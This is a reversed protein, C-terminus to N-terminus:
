KWIGELCVMRFCKDNVVYEKNVTMKSAAIDYEETQERFECFIVHTGPEIEEQGLIEVPILSADPGAVLCERETDWLWERGYEMGNRLSDFDTILVVDGERYGGEIVAKEFSGAYGTFELNVAMYDGISRGSVCNLITGNGYDTEYFVRNSVPDINGYSQCLMLASLATGVALGVFDRKGRRTGIMYVIALLFSYGVCTGMIYRPLLYTYFVSFFLVLMLISGLSMGALICRNVNCGSDEAGASETGSIEDIKGKSRIKFIVLRLIGICLLSLILWNFNLYLFQKGRELTNPAPFSITNIEGGVGEFAGWVNTFLFYIIIWIVGPIVSFFYKNWRVERLKGKRGILEAVFAGMFIGAYLFASTEKTFLFAIGMLPILLEYEKLFVLFFLTGFSLIGYDMSLIPNQGYLYPSFAFVASFVTAEGYANKFVTLICRYFGYIAFAGALVQMMLYGEPGDEVMLRGIGVWLTYAFSRHYIMFDTINKTWLDFYAFREYLMKQYLYGDGVQYQHIEPLSLLIFVVLVLAIGLHHKAVARFYGPIRKLGIERLQYFALVVVALALLGILGLLKEHSYRQWILGNQTMAIFFFVGLAGLVILETRQKAEQAKSTFAALLFDAFLVAFCIKWARVSYVSCFLGSIILLAILRYSAKALKREM